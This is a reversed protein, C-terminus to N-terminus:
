TILCFDASPMNALRGDYHNPCPSPGFM